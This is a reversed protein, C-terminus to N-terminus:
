VTQRRRFVVCALGTLALTISAPEPVTSITAALGTSDNNFQPASEVFDLTTGAPLALAAFNFPQTANFTTFNNM